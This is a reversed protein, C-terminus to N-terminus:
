LCQDSIEINFKLIRHSFSIWFQIREQILRWAIYLNVFAPFTMKLSSGFSVRQYKWNMYYIHGYSVDIMAKLQRVVIPLEARPLQQVIHFLGFFICISTVYFDNIETCNCKRSWFKMFIIFFTKLIKDIREQILGSVDLRIFLSYHWKSSYCANKHSQTVLFIRPGYNWSWIQKIILM